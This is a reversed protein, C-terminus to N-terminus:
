RTVLLWGVIRLRFFLSRQVRVDRGLRTSFMDCRLEKAVIAGERGADALGLTKVCVVKCLAKLRWSGEGVEGEAGDGLWTGMGTRLSLCRTELVGDEVLDARREFDVTEPSLRTRVSTRMAILGTWRLLM